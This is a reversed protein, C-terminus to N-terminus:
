AHEGRGEMFYALLPSLLLTAGACILAAKVGVSLAAAKLGGSLALWLGLGMLLAFACACLAFLLTERRRRRKRELRAAALLMEGRLARVAADTQWDMEAFLKENMDQGGMAKKWAAAATHSQRREGEGDFRM